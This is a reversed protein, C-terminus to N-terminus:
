EPADMVWVFYLDRCQYPPLHLTVYKKLGVNEAIDVLDSKRQRQLWSNTGSM